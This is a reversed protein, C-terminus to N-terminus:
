LHTTFMYCVSGLKNVIGEIHTSWFLTNDIVLSLFKTHSVNSITNNGYIVKSDIQLSNKTRFQVCQTKEYNLSLLNAKFWKNISQFTYHTNTNLSDTM